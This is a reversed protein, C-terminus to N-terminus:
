MNSSLCGICASACKTAAAATSGLWKDVVLAAEDAQAWAEVADMKVIRLFTNTGDNVRNVWRVGGANGFDEAFEAQQLAGELYARVTFPIAATDTRAAGWAISAGVTFPFEFVVEGGNKRLVLRGDARMDAVTFVDTRNRTMPLAAYLKRHYLDRPLPIKVLDVGELPHATTPMQHLAQFRWDSKPTIQVPSTAGFIRPGLSAAM